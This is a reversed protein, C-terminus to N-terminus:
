ALELVRLVDPAIERQALDVLHHHHTFFLVQTRTALEGLVRMTAASRADDFATLIDDVVFPIPESGPEDLHEYISALRLALYLQDATGTSLGSRDMTPRGDPVVKLVERDADDVDQTVGAYEGCTLQSFIAGARTMAPGMQTSARERLYNALLDHQLKLPVYQAALREIEAQADDMDALHPEPQAAGQLEGLDRQLGGLTETAAVQAARADKETATRQAILAPLTEAPTEALFGVVEATPMRTARVIRQDVEAVQARLGARRTWREAAGDLQEVDNLGATDALRALADTAASIADRQNRAREEFKEIDPALQALGAAAERCVGAASAIERVIHDASRGALARALEGGIECRLEEAEDEFARIMTANSEHASRAGTLSDLAVELGSIADLTANGAEALAGADLGIGVAASDWQKRWQTLAEEAKATRPQAKRRNAELARRTAAHERAEDRARDASELIDRATAQLIEISIADSAPPVGVASLADSLDRRVREVRVRLTGAHTSDAQMGAAIDRLARLQELWERMEAVSSAEVDIAAWLQRWETEVQDFEARAHVLDAEHERAEAFAAARAQRLAALEGVIEGAAVMREAYVDVADVAQEFAEAAAGETGAVIPEGDAGDPEGAWAARIRRWLSNRAERLAGFEDPTPVERGESRAAIDADTAAVKAGADALQRELQAVTSRAGALRQDFSAVTAALPVPLSLLVEASLACRPLAHAAASLQVSQAKVAEEHQALLTTDVSAVDELAARLADLGPPPLPAAPTEVDFRELEADCEELATTAEAVERRVAAYADLLTRATTRVADSPVLGLADDPDLKAGIARCAAAAAGEAQELMQALKAREGGAALYEAIRESLLGARDSAAAVAEDVKGALVSRKSEAEELDSTATLSEARAAEVAVRLDRRQQELEASWSDIVAGLGDIEELLSGREIADVVAENIATARALEASATALVTSAADCARMAADIERQKSPWSRGARRAKEAAARAKSYRAIADAISGSRGTSKLLEDIQSALAKLTAHVGVIGTSAAFLSEGLENPDGALGAGGERLTAHDIGYKRAFLDRDVGRLLLDLRTQLEPAQTTDTIDFCTVGTKKRRTFAIRGGAASEVVAAIRLDPKRHLFDYTRPDNRLDPIGHLAYRIAHLTTTKGAENRGYVVQLGPVGGDQGDPILPLEHDSFRGFRRQHLERIRM